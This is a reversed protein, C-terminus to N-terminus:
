ERRDKNNHLVAIIANEVAAADRGRKLYLRRYRATETAPDGSFTIKILEVFVEDPGVAKGNTLLRIADTVEHM